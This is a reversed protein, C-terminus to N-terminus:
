NNIQVKKFQKGLQVLVNIANLTKYKVTKVKHM